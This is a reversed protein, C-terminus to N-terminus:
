PDQIIGRPQSPNLGYMVLDGLFSSLFFLLLHPPFPPPPEEQQAPDTTRDHSLEYEAYM